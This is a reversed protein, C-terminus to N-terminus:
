IDNIKKIEQQRIVELETQKDKRKKTVEKKKEESLKCKKLLKKYYVRRITPDTITDAHKIGKDFTAKREAYDIHKMKTASHVIMPIGVPASFVGCTLIVGGTLEAIAAKKSFDTRPNIYKHPVYDEWKPPQTYPTIVRNVVAPIIQQEQKEDGFTANSYNYNLNVENSDVENIAEEKQILYPTAPASEFGYMTNENLTNYAYASNAVLLTAVTLVFIKKM